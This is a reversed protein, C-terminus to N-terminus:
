AIKSSKFRKIQEIERTQGWQGGGKERTSDGSAQVRMFHSRVTRADARTQKLDMECVM